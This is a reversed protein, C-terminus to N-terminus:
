INGSHLYQYILANCRCPPSGCIKCSYNKEISDDKWYENIQRVLKLNFKELIKSISNNGDKDWCISIILSTKKKLIDLSKKTLLTGVGQNQFGEKVAITKLVGILKHASFQKRFWERESLMTAVINEPKDIQMLQFGTIGSENKSVIGIKNNDNIYQQLEPKTLYNHGFLKDSIKLIENIDGNKLPNIFNITQQSNNINISM